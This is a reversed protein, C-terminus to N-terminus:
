RSVASSRANSTPEVGFVAEWLDAAELWAQVRRREKMKGM